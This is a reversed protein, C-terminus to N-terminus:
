GFNLEQDGELYFDEAEGGEQDSESEGMRSEQRATFQYLEESSQVYM